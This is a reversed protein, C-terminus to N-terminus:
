PVLIFPVSVTYSSYQGVKAGAYNASAYLDHDFTLYYVRYPKLISLDTSSLTFSGGDSATMSLYGGYGISDPHIVLETMPESYHVVISVDGASSYGSYNVSYGSSAHVTDLYGLNSIQMVTAMPFTSSFTGGLFGTVNWSLAYPPSTPIAPWNLVYQGRGVNEFTQSNVSVSTVDMLSDPGAFFAQVSSSATTFASDFYQQGANYLLLGVLSDTTTIGFMTPEIPNVKGDKNPNTPPTECASLLCALMIQVGITKM